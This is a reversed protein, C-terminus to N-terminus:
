RRLGQVFMAGDQTLRYCYHRKSLKKEIAECELLFRMSANFSNRNKYLDQSNYNLEGNELLLILFKIQKPSPIQYKDFPLM